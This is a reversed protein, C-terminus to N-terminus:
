CVEEVAEVQRDLDVLQRRAVARDGARDLDDRGSGALGRTARLRELALQDLLLGRGLARAKGLPDAREVEVHQAHLLDLVDLRQAPEVLGLDGVAAEAAQVLPERQDLAVVRAEDVDGHQALAREAGDGAPLVGAMGLGRALGHERAVQDLDVDERGVELLDHELHEVRVELALKDREVGLIRLGLLPRRCALACALRLHGGPIM